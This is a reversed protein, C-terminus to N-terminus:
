TPLMATSPSVCALCESLAVEHPNSVFTGRGEGCRWTQTCGCGGSVGQLQEGRHPCANVLALRAAYAATASPLSQSASASVVGTRAEVMRRYRAALEPSAGPIIVTLVEDQHVIM